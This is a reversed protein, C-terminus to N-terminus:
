RRLVLAALTVAGVFVGAALAWGMSGRRPRRAGGASADSRAAPVTLRTDADAASKCADDLNLIVSVRGRGRRANAASVRRAPVESYMRMLYRGTERARLQAVVSRVKPPLEDLQPLPAGYGDPMVIPAGYGVFLLDALTLRDGLLYKHGEAFHRDLADFWDYVTALDNKAQARSLDLVRRLFAAVIPYAIRVMTREVSPVAGGALSPIVLSPDQLLEYYAWRAVPWGWDYICM